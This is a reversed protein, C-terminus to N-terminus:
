KANKIERIFVSPNVKKYMRKKPVLLTLHKKARTIAVYFLRREEESDIVREDYIPFEGDVLDTIIVHDYELGKSQHVTSVYIPNENTPNILSKSNINEIFCKVEHLNEYNESLNLLIEQVLDLSFNEYHRKLYELYGTNFFIEELKGKLNLKKMRNLSNSFEVMIKKQYDPLSYDLIITKVIGESSDPIISYVYDKRLYLNLKYYIRKFADMNNKDMSLDVIDILDRLIENLIDAKFNLKKTYKVNNKEFFNIISIANINNRFLIGLTEGDKMDKIYDLIYKNQVHLNKVKALTIPLNQNSNSKVDKLYRNKNKQILFDSLRVIDNSSRYNVNLYMMNIDPYINQIDLLYKPNAGRFGYISQDDDAVIFLNNKPKAIEELIKFQILSADQGEDLQIYKYFRRVSNLVKEESLLIKYAFSLMDDFDIFHNAEKFADYENAIEEFYNNNQFDYGLLNNKVYSYNTFFTDLDEKSLYRNHSQASIRNVLAYKNFEHSGEILRFNLKMEKAYFRIISYCFAHITSFNPKLSTNLRYFRSKMDLAQTKSFTLNLIQNDKIKFTNNLYVIRNLLVTTKGSGPVALVLAPGENHEIANKQQISIKM